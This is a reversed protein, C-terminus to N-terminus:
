PLGRSALLALAAAPACQTARARVDPVADFLTEIGICPRGLRRAVERVVAEGIGASVVPAEAPMTAASLVLLAGDVIARVQAEALWQALGSWAADTADAADHGVMRALRARSAEITKARGDATPMQDADAPRTEGNTM